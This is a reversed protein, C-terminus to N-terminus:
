NRTLIKIPSLRFIVYQPGVTAVDVLVASLQDKSTQVIFSLEKYKEFEQVLFGAMTRRDNLSMLSLRLAIKEHTTELEATIDRDGYRGEWLRFIQPGKLSREIAAMLKQAIYDGHKIKDALSIVTREMVSGKRECSARFTAVADGVAFLQCSTIVMTYLIKLITWAGYHNLANFDCLYM